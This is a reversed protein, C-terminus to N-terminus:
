GTTWRGQAASYVLSRSCVAGGNGGNM